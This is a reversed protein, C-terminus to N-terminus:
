IPSPAGGGGGRPSTADPLSVLRTFNIKRTPVFYHAHPYEYSSIFLLVDGKYFTSDLIKGDAGVISFLERWRDLVMNGDIQQFAPVQM